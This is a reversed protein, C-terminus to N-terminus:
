GFYIDGYNEEEGYEEGYDFEFGGAEIETLLSMTFASAYIGSALIFNALILLLINRVKHTKKPILLPYIDDTQPMENGCSSCNRWQPGCASGCTPCQKKVQLLCSPCVANEDKLEKGCRPCLYLKKKDRESMYVMAGICYPLLATLLVWMLPDIGRKKADKYVWISLFVTMVFSLVTLIVLIVMSAIIADVM